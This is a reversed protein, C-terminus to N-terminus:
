HNLNCLEVANRSLVIKQQVELKKLVRSIVERATGMDYAIKQHTTPILSVGLLSAKERLYRMIRDELNEFILYSVTDLLDMYRKNYINFMFASFSPYKKLWSSLKEAPILLVETEEETLANITSHSQNLCAHFSMACSEGPRIYYLLFERDERTQFVKIRGSLLLPIAAVFGEEELILQNDPIRKYIAEKKLEQLFEDEIFPIYKKLLQDM